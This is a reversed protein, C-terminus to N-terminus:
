TFCGFAMNASMAAKAWQDCNLKKPNLISPPANPDAWDHNLYTAISYHIFMGFRLNIFEQQLMALDKQSNLKSQGYGSISSLPITNIIIVCVLWTKISLIKRM